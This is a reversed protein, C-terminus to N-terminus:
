LRRPEREPAFSILRWGKKLCISQDLNSYLCYLGGSGYRLFRNSFKRWSAGLRCVFVSTFSYSLLYARRTPLSASMMSPHDNTDGLFYDDVSQFVCVM